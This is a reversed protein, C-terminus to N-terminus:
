KLTYNKSIIQIKQFSKLVKKYLAMGANGPMVYVNPLHEDRTCRDAISHERGGSGLILINKPLSM